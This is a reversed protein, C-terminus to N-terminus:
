DHQYILKKNSEYFEFTFGVPMSCTGGGPNAGGYDCTKNGLCDFFQCMGDPMDPCNCDVIYEIGEFAFWYIEQCRNTLRSKLWPLNEEPHRVGCVYDPEKDCSDSILFTSIILLLFCAKKM